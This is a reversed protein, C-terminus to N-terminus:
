QKKYDLIYKYFEYALQKNPANGAFAIYIKETALNNEKIFDTDTIDIGMPLMEEAGEEQTYIIKDSMESLEEETFMQRLDMYIEQSALYNFGLENLLLYDLRKAAVQAVVGEGSYYTANIDGEGSFIDSIVVTSYDIKQRGETKHLAFFDDTIYKQGEDTLMLNVGVGSLIVDTNVNILSTVSIAIIVGLVAAFLLFDRLYYDKIFLIFEKPKMGKTKERFGSYHQKIKTFVKM